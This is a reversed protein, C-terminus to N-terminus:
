TIKKTIMEERMLLRNRRSNTGTSFTSTGSSIKRNQQAM